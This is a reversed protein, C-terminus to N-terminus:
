RPMAPIFKPPTNSYSVSVTESETTMATTAAVVASHAATETWPKRGLRPALTTM